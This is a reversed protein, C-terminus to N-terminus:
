FQRRLVLKEADRVYRDIIQSFYCGFFLEQFNYRQSYYASPIPTLM